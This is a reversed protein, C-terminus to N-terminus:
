PGNGHRSGIFDWVVSGTSLHHVQIYLFPFYQSDVESWEWALIKHVGLTCVFCVASCSQSVSAVEMEVGRASLTATPLVTRPGLYARHSITVFFMTWPNPTYPLAQCDRLWTGGPCQKSTPPVPGVAEHFRFEFSIHCHACCLSETRLTSTHARRMQSLLDWTPLLIKYWLHYLQAHLFCPLNWLVVQSCWVIEASTFLWCLFVM